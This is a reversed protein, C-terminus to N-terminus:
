LRGVNLPAFLEPHKAMIHELQHWHRTCSDFSTGDVRTLRFSPNYNCDSGDVQPISCKKM